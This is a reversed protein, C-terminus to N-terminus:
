GNENPKENGCEDGGHGRREFGENTMIQRSNAITTKIHSMKRDKRKDEKDVKKRQWRLNTQKNEMTAFRPNSLSPLSSLPPLRPSSILLSLFPLFFLLSLITSLGMWPGPRFLHLPRRAVADTAAYLCRLRGLSPPSLHSELSSTPSMVPLGGFTWLRLLRPTARAISYTPSAISGWKASQVPATLRRVLVSAFITSNLVFGRGYSRYLAAHLELFLRRQCASKRPPPAWSM